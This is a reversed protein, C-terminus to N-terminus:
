IEKEIAADDYVKEQKPKGQKKKKDKDKSIKTIQAVTKILSSKAM